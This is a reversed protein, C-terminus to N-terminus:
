KRIIGIDKCLKKVQNLHLEAVEEAEWGKLILVVSLRDLFDFDELGELVSRETDTLSDLVKTLEEDLEMM